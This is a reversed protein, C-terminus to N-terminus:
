TKRTHPEPNNTSTTPSDTAASGGNSVLWRSKLLFRHSPVTGQKLEENEAELKSSLRRQARWARTAGAFLPWCGHGGSRWFGRRAQGPGSNGWDRSKEQTSQLCSTPPELGGLEVKADGSTRQRAHVHRGDSVARRHSGRWLARPAPSLIHAGSPGDVCCGGEARTPDTCIASTTENSVWM